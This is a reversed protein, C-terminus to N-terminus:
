MIRSKKIQVEFLKKDLVSTNESAMLTNQSNGKECFPEIMFINSMTKVRYAGVGCFPWVWVVRLYDSEMFDAKTFNSLDNLELDDFVLEM